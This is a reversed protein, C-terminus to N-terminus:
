AAADAPRVAVNRADTWWVEGDADKIGVRDRYKGPGYWIVFGTTGVPVKRGGVVEVTRGRKPENAEAAEAARARDAWFQRNAAFEADLFPDTTPEAKPALGRYHCPERRDARDEAYRATVYAQAGAEDPFTVPQGAEDKEPYWRPSLYDLTTAEYSYEVAWAGVVANSM